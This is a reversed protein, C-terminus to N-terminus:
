MSNIRIDNLHSYHFKQLSEKARSGGMCQRLGIPANLTSTYGDLCLTSKSFPRLDGTAAPAPDILPYKRILDHAVTNLFWKFSKCNLRQRLIHRERLDGPDVFLCQPNRLYIYEQYEDMWVEAVRRYNRFLFDDTAAQLFNTQHLRYVHGVRSCPIDLIQGGCMWVKFSLEFQEGGWIELGPDYGGLEWFWKRSIAFLGGAMVPSNFSNWPKADGDLVRPLRKYSFEWSFVGRGGEDQPRYEFTM